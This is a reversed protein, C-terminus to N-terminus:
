LVVATSEFLQGVNVLSTRGCILPLIYKTCSPAFSVQQIPLVLAMLRDQEFRIVEASM